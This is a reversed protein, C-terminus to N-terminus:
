LSPDPTRLRPLFRRVQGYHNSLHEFYNDNDERSLTAVIAVDKELQERPVRAFISRVSENMVSKSRMVQFQRLTQLLTLLMHRGIM